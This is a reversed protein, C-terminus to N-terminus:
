GGTLLSLSGILRGTHTSFRSSACAGRPVRMATVAEYECQLGSCDECAARIVCRLELCDACVARIGGRGRVRGSWQVRGTGVRSSHWPRTGARPATVPACARPASGVGCVVPGCGARLALMAYSLARVGPPIRDTRARITPHTPSSRPLPSGILRGTHTSFRSSACAGRPVRMATVAEYECQLGSCDECAARIVCRLELCDACVARIGGRGRVRGSWQVRGTGVRSSHWPRTGARPATVPACARPASGVGCVVPGCGARLALM